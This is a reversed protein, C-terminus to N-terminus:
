ATKSLSVQIVEVVASGPLLFPTNALNSTHVSVYVGSGRVVELQQLLSSSSNFEVV